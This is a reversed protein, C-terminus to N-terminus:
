NLLKMKKDGFKSTFIIPFGSVDWIATTRSGKNLVVREYVTGPPYVRITTGRVEAVEVFEVVTTTTNVTVVVYGLTNELGTMYGEPKDSSLQYSPAGGTAVTFYHIGSREVHEYAHVHAAFVASVGWRIFIPEWRERVDLFGGPHNPDASYLPHHLAVFTWNGNKEPIGAIFCDQDATMGSSLPNSDLVVISVDGVRFTYWPSIGFIDRLVRSDQEHNGTVPYFPLHSLMPGAATFFRGWEENDHPDNVLDGTHLVFLVDPEEAIRGAVLAHHTSQNWWPLQERTDGYVVFTISGNAPFTRFSYESNSGSLSYAYTQNPSLNGLRVHHMVSDQDETIHWEFSGPTHGQMDDYLVTGGCAEGTRWNVTVSDTTMNTLYPGWIVSSLDGTDTLGSVAPVCFAGLLLLPIIVQGPKGLRGTM